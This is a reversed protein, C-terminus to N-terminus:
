KQKLAAKAKQEWEQSTSLLSKVKSVVEEVAIFTFYWYVYVSRTHLTVAVKM